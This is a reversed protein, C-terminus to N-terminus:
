HSRLVPRGISHLVPWGNPSLRDFGGSASRRARHSRLVPAEHRDADVPRARLELGQRAQAQVVQHLEGDLAQAAEEIPQRQRAGHKVHRQLEQQVLDARAQLIQAVHPQVVQRQIPLAAREAAALHLADVEGGGQAGAEDVGQEHQVLGRDAQVRAVHTADVLGHQAQAIRAVGQDDDLVVRGHHQGGVAQDVHARARALAAALDDEVARGLGRARRVRQGAGVETRALLHRRAKALQHFGAAGPEQEFARALVVQLAHVQGHREVAQHADGADAAAALAAQDLVHEVGRQGAVEALGGLRGAGEIAQQAGFLQSVRNEHVLAGDALRRAAVRGAVHAGEISQARQEGLCWQRALAAVGGAGEAEVRAIAAAGGAAAATELVHLHLEERVHVQAAGVAVARAVARGHEVHLQHAPRLPKGDGVHQREGEGFGRVPELGVALDQRAQLGDDVHAEIVHAEALRHGREAAALRLAEFEGAEQGLSRVRGRLAHGFVARQKEEVLGGRAQVEVVDGLQHPGEALQQRCPVGQHDDLVVEVDDAGGVPDHVEPGLAALGAAQDDAGARGVVHLGM